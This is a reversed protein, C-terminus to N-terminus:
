TVQTDARMTTRFRMSSCISPRHKLGNHTTTSPNKSISAQPNGWMGQNTLDGAANFEPTGSIPATHRFIAASLDPNAGLDSGNPGALPITIGNFSWIDSIYTQYYDQDAGGANFGAGGPEIIRYPAYIEASQFDGGSTSPVANLYRQFTVSRDETFTQENEGLAVNTGDGCTLNFAIKVGFADVRTTDMNISTPGATFEIFDWYDTNDEALTPDNLFFYMRGSSNPPMAFTPQEAFTYQSAVGNITATWIIQDNTYKGNTRNLFKMMVTDGAPLAPMNSADWFPAGGWLNPNLGPTTATVTASSPSTGLSNSALVQYYYQTSATGLADQFWNSKTSGIENSASPTFPATASRYIYYETALTGVESNTSNWMLDIENANEAIATLGTLAAPAAISATAPLTTASALAAASTGSPTSAVVQYYYTTSSQVGPGAPPSLTAPYNGDLYNTIGITTGMLNSASPTFPSTTSRYVLYNVPAANPALTTSAVWRLDIQQSSSGVATLGTAPAPASSAPTTAQAQASAASIGDGDVVKVVYYYTTSAALGTNSYSTGTVGGAILTTPSATTGGYVSYSSISCNAPPTVATWNLSINSSSAATATLGTPASPVTTCAAGSQTTAAAQASAASTGDADVAKVVYYYTTSAALGTTSYTTGTVGGAILTTPSPTTGGYVNYSGITCNAPPTVAAWSLGIVSSSSATAVLGTPASPVASCSTGSAGRIEIGMVVPQNAAGVTFAIVIQGSSNATATFTELLAANKGVSAYIDLNTLVTTGNIAVNFERGGAASFYTEAFHLLVSYSSGATLGPITYTSVGARGYQYVAMPASNAGPQSLAITATVPSNDGGGAFDEDAVFSFDGGGSDSEAPGGAAIAVIETGNGAAQTTAQAQTSAASAGDADVAKVVYYYTASAALGTNSYSTGTAVSAILTTPNATTGGYVSYSSITCDGPPTVATWSLSIASSTTATATLGAPAAPVASCSAASTTGSAQASSASTGGADLAEIVFYYTTSTALGTNSYSTGTGGSSVLTNASPTFGNTTSRYVSYSSISCNAPATVASWNAILSNSTAGSTMVGTPASPVATCGAGSAGRIEIGMILPQDKAGVTFAIVIQGSSNATATFTELLAANKGVTAYVDLNTLVTTGNIAVNFERGGAASFYTEAFHLLVSYTSGGTLGPITYTSVGARGHQYVAMPAANVGPQTLSISATVPANDGGGVFDEDAVFSNDGGSTNSEAPGGAAIAAVEQAGVGKACTFGLAYVMALGLLTRLVSTRGFISDNYSM